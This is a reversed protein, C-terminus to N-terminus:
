EKEMLLEAIERINHKANKKLEAIKEYYVIRGLGFFRGELKKWEDIMMITEFAGIAILSDRYECKAPKNKKKVMM